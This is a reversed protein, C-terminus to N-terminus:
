GIRGIIIAPDFQAPAAPFAADAAGAAGNFHVINGTGTYDSIKRAIGKLTGGTFVLVAGTFYDDTNPLTGGTNAITFQDAAPENDAWVVQLALGLSMLGATADDDTFLFALNIPADGNADIETVNAPVPGYNGTQLNGLEAQLQGSVINTIEQLDDSDLTAM